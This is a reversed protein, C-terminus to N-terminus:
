QMVRGKWGDEEDIEWVTVEYDENLCGQLAIRRAESRDKAEIRIIYAIEYIM